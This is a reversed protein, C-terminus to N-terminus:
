LHWAERTEFLHLSSPTFSLYFTLLKLPTAPILVECLQFQRIMLGELGQSLISWCFYQSNEVCACLCLLLLLMKVYSSWYFFSDEMRQSLGWICAVAPTSGPPVWCGPVGDLCGVLQAMGHQRWLCASAPLQILSLLQSELRGRGIYQQGVDVGYCNKFTLVHM